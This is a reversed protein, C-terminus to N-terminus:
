RLILPLFLLQRTAFAEIRGLVIEMAEPDPAAMILDDMKSWVYQNLDSPLQDTLDFRFIDANALQQAAARLNPDTYLNFDVSKNPSMGGNAIWAEAADTSILFNIFSQAKSTNEFVFAMDGAGVLANSYVPNIDPFPAVAYDTGSIQTPFQNAIFNSAFSGQHHLYAEPPEKFPPMMADIFSTNITGSKGGLQYDENGFIDGFHTMATLIEPHTWPINHAVLDDYVQPGASRLLINEFWDTIPWGSAEASEMGISWPPTGTESLIQDSLELLESWTTAASWSHSAFQTPDYWVLSKNSANIGVGFLADNVKGLEIWTESYNASLVTTNIFPTLEALIGSNALDTILGPNPTIGVDPCNGSTECQLFDSLGWGGTYTVTIGTQDFFEKLIPQFQGADLSGSVTLTGTDSIQNNVAVKATVQQTFFVIVGLLMTFVLTITILRLVHGITLIIEIRKM